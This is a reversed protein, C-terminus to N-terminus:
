INIMSSFSVQCADKSGDEVGACLQSEKRIGDPLNGGPINSYARQCIEHPVYNLDVKQLESSVDGNPTTRGWGIATLKSSVLEGSSDGSYLCIPAIYETFAVNQDLQLLAIDNYYQGETYGPHPIRRIVNYDMSNLTETQLLTTGLRM